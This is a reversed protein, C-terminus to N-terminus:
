PGDKGVLSGTAQPHQRPGSPRSDSHPQMAQAPDISEVEHLTLDLLADRHRQTLEAILSVREGAELPRTWWGAAQPRFGHTRLWACVEADERVRVELVVQAYRRLYAAADGDYVVRGGELALVRDVIHRIEEFRHSCLLVTPRDPLRELQEFFARRSAVDLSATPEDLVLLRPRSALAISVLLKQRMGGSLARVPRDAIPDLELDFGRATRAIADPQLGRLACIAAVVEDVSAALQPAIQPVYALQRMVAVRERLPCRGDLRVSGTDPRLLGLVVRLLTSKGAGNPGILAVHEGSRITASVGDLARLPGFRRAVRDIEIEVAVNRGSRITSVWARTRM